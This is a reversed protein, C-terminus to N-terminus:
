LSKNKKFFSRIMKKKQSSLDQNDCESDNCGIEYITVEKFEGDIVNIREDM